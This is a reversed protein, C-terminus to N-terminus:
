DVAFRVRQRTGSEDPAHRLVAEFVYEGRRLTSVPLVDLLNQCRITGDGELSLPVEPLTGLTRGGAERLVRGIMAATGTPAEADNRKSSGVACVQTLAVLDESGDVRQVLLPEFSGPSGVQDEDPVDGGGTVVLNSSSARGLLPGVFFTEGRPVRPLEIEARATDARQGEPDNVVVTLTYEGADLSVPELFVVWRETPSSPDLPQLSIRRNFSHAVKPGKNVVAGFDRQAPAAAAGALPMPFSVALLGEWRRKSNPRLPFLHARVVGTEAAGPSVFAARVASEERTADSRFVYSSPHMVRLGPRRVNVRATRARGDTAEPDRFGLSYVCSLDSQARGYALTVDNTRESFRGGTDAALRALTVLPGISREPKPSEAKRRKEPDVLRGGSRTSLDALPQKM